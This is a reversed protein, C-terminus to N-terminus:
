TTKHIMACMNFWKNTYFHNTTHKLNRGLFLDCVYSCLKLHSLAICKLSSSLSTPFLKLLRGLQSPLVKGSASFFILIM